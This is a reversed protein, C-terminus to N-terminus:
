INLFMPVNSIDCSISEKVIKVEKFKIVMM